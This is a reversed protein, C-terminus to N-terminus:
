EPVMGTQIRIPSGKRQHKVEGGIITMEVEVGDLLLEPNKEGVEYLDHSWVTFDAKKGVEISGRNHEDFAAYAANITYCRLADQISICQEPYFPTGHLDKRTVASYLTLQPRFSKASPYDTNICVKIGMRLLTKLPKIRESRRHPPDKAKLPRWTSRDLPDYDPDQCDYDYLECLDQGAYYIFAPQCSVVIGLDAIKQLAAETPLILHELLHRPSRPIRPIPQVDVHPAKKMANAIADIIWDIAKDGVCHVKVQRGTRHLDLVAAELDHKWWNPVDHTIGCHPDYTFASVYTGDTQLKWGAFQVGKWERKEALPWIKGM